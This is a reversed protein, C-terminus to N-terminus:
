SNAPQDNHRNRFNGPVIDYKALKDYLTKRPVGLVSVVATVNGGQQRLAECIVNKEFAEVQRPLPVTADATTKGEDAFLDLGLVRREAANRLERVNGPWDHRTLASIESATLPSFDRGFRDKALEMFHQFLLPIDEVRDRLPPIHLQVVNLRYYLDERFAGRSAAARLDIKTAAVVRLDIAQVKNSGLREFAREQLVRLLKVQLSLPMSEIEDLFLTGKDAFEFKGVRKQDAGTFAGAEHGFLESEILNEPIAGCNIAVFPGSRGSIDHLTRAVVEKGAGTEGNIMVHADTSAINGILARLKEMSPARGILATGSATHKALEAKLNRNESLLHRHAMARRMVDIFYDPAFPKEIFDYAGDRMARVATAVDGHGTVLIVPLEPNHAIAAQLLAMGDMKPMRIDTVLIGPWGQRIRLLAKEPESYCEVEIDALELTQQAAERVDADDDVFLVSYAPFKM